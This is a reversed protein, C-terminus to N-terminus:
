VVSKRDQDQECDIQKDASAARRSEAHATELETVRKKLAANEELLQANTKNDDNM